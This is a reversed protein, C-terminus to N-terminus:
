NLTLGDAFWQGVVSKAPTPATSRCSKRCMSCIVERNSTRFRVVQSHFSTSKRPNATLTQLKSFGELTNRHSPAPSKAAPVISNM